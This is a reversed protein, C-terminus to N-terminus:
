LQRICKSTFFKNLFIFKFCSCHYYITQANVTLRWYWFFFRWDFDAFEDRRVEQFVDSFKECNECLGELVDTLKTDVISVLRGDDALLM